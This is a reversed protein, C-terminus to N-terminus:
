DDDIGHDIDSKAETLGTTAELVSKPRAHGGALDGRDRRGDMEVLAGAAIAALQADSLESPDVNVVAAASKTHDMYMGLHKGLMDSARLRHAMDLGDDMTWELWQEALQAKVTAQYESSWVRLAKPRRAERKDIEARVIPRALTQSGIDKAKGKSYGALLAAEKVVGNAPGLYADVFRKEKLTLRRKPADAM